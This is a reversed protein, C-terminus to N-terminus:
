LRIRDVRDIYSVGRSNKATASGIVSPKAEAIDAFPISRGHERGVSLSRARNLKQAGNAPEPQGIDSKSAISRM